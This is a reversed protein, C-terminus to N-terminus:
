SQDLSVKTAWAPNIMCGHIPPLMKEACQVMQMPSLDIDGRGLGRWAVEMATSTSFAWCNNTHGQDKLHGELSWQRLDRRKPPPSEAESLHRANLPSRECVVLDDLTDDNKM